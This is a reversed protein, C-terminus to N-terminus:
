SVAGFQDAMAEAIDPFTTSRIQSREESPPEAFVSQKIGKDIFRFEATPRLRPLNKLWLHTEKSEDCEGFQYPQIIQSEKIGIEAEAYIHPKPNEICIRPIPTNLLSKFFEAALVMKFWRTDDEHLWRIGSNCLYTCPPHAIMLDWGAPNWIMDGSQLIQHPNWTANIADGIIHWEPHGGSCPKIDCSYAQHGKNRFALCVRQSEECAVLIKM